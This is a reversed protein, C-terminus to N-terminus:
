FNRMKVWTILTVTAAILITIRIVSVVDGWGLSYHLGNFAAYAYSGGFWAISCAVLWICATCLFVTALRIIM